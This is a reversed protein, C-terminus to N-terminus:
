EEVCEPAEPLNTKTKPMPMQLELKSTDIQVRDLM